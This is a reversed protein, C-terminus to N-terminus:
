APVVPFLQIGDRFVRMGIEAWEDVGRQLVAGYPGRKGPKLRDLGISAIEPKWTNVVELEFRDDVILVDGIKFDALKM